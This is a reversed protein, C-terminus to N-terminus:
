LGFIENEKYPKVSASQAPSTMVRREVVLYQNERPEAITEQHLLFCCVTDTELVSASYTAAM